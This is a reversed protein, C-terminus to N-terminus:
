FTFARLKRIVRECENAENYHPAAAEEDGSHRLHDAYEEENKARENLAIQITELDVYTLENKNKM